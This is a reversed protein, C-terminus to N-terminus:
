RSAQSQAEAVYAALEASVVGRSAREPGREEYMRQLSGRIGPDGGTFAEVLESWRRALEQVRPDGPDAGAQREVVARLDGDQELAV